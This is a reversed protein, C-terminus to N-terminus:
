CCSVFHSNIISHDQILPGTLVINPLQHIKNLLFSLMTSSNQCSLSISLLQFLATGEGSIESKERTNVCQCHQM